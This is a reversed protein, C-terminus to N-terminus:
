GNNSNVSVQARSRPRYGGGSGGGGQQAAAGTAPVGGNPNLLDPSFGNFDPHAMVVFKQIVNSLRNLTDIGHDATSLWQNVPGVMDTNGVSEGGVVRALDCVDIAELRRM